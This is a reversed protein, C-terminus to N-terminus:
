LPANIDIKILCFAIVIVRCIICISIINLNMVM